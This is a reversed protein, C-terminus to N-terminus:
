PRGAVGLACVEEHAESGATSKVTLTESGEGEWVVDDVVHM